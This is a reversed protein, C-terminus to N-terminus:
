PWKDHRRNLDCQFGAKKSTSTGGSSRQTESQSRLRWTAGPFREKDYADSGCFADRRWRLQLEARHDHPSEYIRFGRVVQITESLIDGTSYSSLLVGFGERVSKVTKEMECKKRVEDVDNAALWELSYEILPVQILPLLVPACEVSM